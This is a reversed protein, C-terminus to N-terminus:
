LLRQKPSLSNSILDIKMMRTKTQTIMKMSKRKKNAIQIKMM